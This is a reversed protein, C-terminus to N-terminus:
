IITISTSSSAPYKNVRDDMMGHVYCEGVLSYGKSLLKAEGPGMTERLLFPTPAGAILCIKDGKRSHPPVLGMRGNESVMFARNEAARAVAHLWEHFQSEERLGTPYIGRLEPFDNIRLPMDADSRYERLRVISLAAYAKNCDSFYTPAPRLLSSRDAVVTRWFAEKLEQGSYPYPDEFAKILRESELYWASRERALLTSKAEQGHGPQEVGKVLESVVDVIVASVVVAPFSDKTIVQVTGKEPEPLNNKNLLYYRWEWFPNPMSPRSWDVAWSPLKSKPDWGVGAYAFMAFPDAEQQLVIKSVETFVELSSKKYDLLSIPLANSELLSSLAFIKDRPDTCKSRITDTLLHGIHVDRLEGMELDMKLCAMRDVGAMAELLAKSRAPPPGDPGYLTALRRPNMLQSLTLSFPEWPLYYGGHYIEVNSGRVIEQIVWMRTFYPNELLKIMAKWPRRKLEDDFFDRKEEEPASFGSSATMVRMIMSMAMGSEPEDGPWVIVRQAKSYIDKMLPLQNSKEQVDSQNICIADIWVLRDHYRSSRAHLLQYASSPIIMPKNNVFILETQNPVNAFGWRYSLAEFSPLKDLPVIELQCRLHGWFLKQRSIRLLRIVPSGEGLKEYQYQGPTNGQSHLYYINELCEGLKRSCWPMTFFKLLHLHNNIDEVLYLSHNTAWVLAHYWTWSFNALVAKLTATITSPYLEDMKAAVAHAIIACIQGGWLVLFVVLFWFAMNRAPGLATWTVLIAFYQQKLRAWDEIRKQRASDAPQGRSGEESRKGYSTIYMAVFVSFYFYLGVSEYPFFWLLM